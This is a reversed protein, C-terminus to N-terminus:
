DVFAERRRQTGFSQRVVVSNVTDVLPTGRLTPVNRARGTTPSTVVTFGEYYSVNVHTITGAGTWGAGVIASFYSNFGTLASAVFAATWQGPSLINATAGFPWYGRPHGGRYRRAIEYSTVVAIQAPLELTSSGSGAVSAATIDVASTPSTLDVSEVQTLVRDSDVLSKLDAGYATVAAADYTALQANTPATGTYHMYYRTLWVQGSAFTGSLATRVVGPVDPLAPM